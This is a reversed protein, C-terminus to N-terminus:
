KGTQIRVRQLPDVSRAAKILIDILRPLNSERCMNALAYEKGSEGRRRLESAPLAIVQRLVAALSSAHDPEVLWGANAGEVLHATESNPLVQAVVPRGALMYSILKSPVSALSQRGITPLLFVDAAGLVTATEEHLWPSHFFVRKCGLDAARKRCAELRSGTGAILLYVSTLDGLSAFAEVLGDAGAATGVNGAYIALFADEPIGIKRRFAATQQAEAHLACREGWNQVVHVRTPLIGRDRVYTDRFCDSITVVGTASHAIKRDAWRLLRFLTTREGTRGQSVLSEPYLDQISLVLPVGRLKTVFAVMGAAFIAWTSCYVVDPRRSLLLRLSSTLGFSLNEILRSFMASRPSLTSFCHILDFGEPMSRRSYLSRRYGPFLAGQPKNPFPALVQVDHGAIAMERALDRSTTAQYTFEPPYVASIICIKM